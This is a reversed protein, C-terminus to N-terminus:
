GPAFREVWELYGPSLQDDPIRECNRPDPPGGYTIEGGMRSQDDFPKLGCLRNWVAYHGAEETIAYGQAKAMQWPVLLTYTFEDVIAHDDVILRHVELSSNGIGGRAFMAIYFDRVEDLGKPGPGHPHRFAPEPDFTAMVADLDFAAETRIHEILTELNARHRPNETVALRDEFASSCCRIDDAAVLRKTSM